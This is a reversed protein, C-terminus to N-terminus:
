KKFDSHGERPEIAYLKLEGKVLCRTLEKPQMILLM